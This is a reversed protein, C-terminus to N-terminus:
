SDPLCPQARQSGVQTSPYSGVGPHPPSPRRFIFLLHGSHAAIEVTELPGYYLHPPTDLKRPKHGEHRGADITRAYQARRGDIGEDM